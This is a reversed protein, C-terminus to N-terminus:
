LVHVKFFVKALQEISSPLVKNERYHCVILEHLRAEVEHESFWYSALRDIFPGKGEFILYANLLKKDSIDGMMKITDLYQLYHIHEHSVIAKVSKEELKFGAPSLKLEAIGQWFGAEIPSFAGYTDEGGWKSSSKNAKVIAIILLAIFILPSMIILLLIFVFRLFLNMVFFSKKVDLFGTRADRWIDELLLSAENNYICLMPKKSFLIYDLSQKVARFFKKYRNQKVVKFRSNLTNCELKGPPFDGFDDRLQDECTKIVGIDVTNGKKVFM